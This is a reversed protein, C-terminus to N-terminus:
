YPEIFSISVIELDEQLLSNPYKGNIFRIFTHSTRDKQNTQLDIVKPYPPTLIQLIISRAKELYSLRNSDRVFWM